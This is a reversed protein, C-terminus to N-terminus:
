PRLVNEKLLKDAESKYAEAKEKLAIAIIPSIVELNPSEASPDGKIMNDFFVQLRKLPIMEIAKKATEESRINQGKLFYTEVLHLHAMISRNNLDLAHRFYRIGRDLEGKYKYAIGLNILAPLFDEKTELAKKFESIAEELRKKKLLVFGLNNHAQGSNKNCTLSSILYNLAADYRGEKIEIAGLNNYADSFGPEIEITKLLHERAKNHESFSLFIISMNYYTLHNIIGNPSGALKLSLEYQELAKEKKGIDEYYKGLNHYGRALKPYKDIADLWLSEGTKWIFNRMFTSHGQGILVLVIFMSVIAQM